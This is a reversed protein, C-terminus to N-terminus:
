RKFVAKSYYKMFRDYNDRSVLYKGTPSFMGTHTYYEVDITSYKQIIDSITSDM